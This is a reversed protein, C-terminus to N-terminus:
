LYDFETFAVYVFSFGNPLAM